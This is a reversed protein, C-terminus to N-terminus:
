AWVRGGFSSWGKRVERVTGRGIHRLIWSLTGRRRRSSISNSNNDSPTDGKGKRKGKVEVGEGM